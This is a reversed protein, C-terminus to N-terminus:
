HQEHREEWLLAYVDALLNLRKDLQAPSLAEITMDRASQILYEAQRLLDAKRGRANDAARRATQEKARRQM